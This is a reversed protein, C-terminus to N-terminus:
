SGYFGQRFLKFLFVDGEGRHTVPQFRSLQVVGDMPPEEGGKLDSGSLEPFRFNLFDYKRSWTNRPITEIVIIMELRIVYVNVHMLM